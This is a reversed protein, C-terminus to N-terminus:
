FCDYQVFDNHNAEAWAVDAEFAKKRYDETEWKYTALLEKLRTVPVEIMGVGDYNRGEIFFSDGELFDMIETDHWLNFSCDALEM